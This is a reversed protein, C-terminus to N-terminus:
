LARKGRPTGLVMYRSRALGEPDVAMMGLYRNIWLCIPLIPYYYWIFPWVNPLPSVNLTQMGSVLTSSSQSVPYCM